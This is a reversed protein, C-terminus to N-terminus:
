AIELLIGEIVDAVDACRDTATELSEYLEKWKIIQKADQEQAFLSKLATFLKVDADGELHRIGACIERIGNFDNLYRLSKVAREVQKVSEVLIHALDLLDQTTTQMQYIIMYDATSDISDITDDLRCILTYIQDRDFPTIFTRHLAEICHQAIADAEHELAKIKTSEPIKQHNSICSLLEQAAELTIGAHKEFYDFFLGKNALLRSFM